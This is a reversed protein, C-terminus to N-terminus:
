TVLIGANRLREERMLAQAYHSHDGSYGGGGGGGLGGAGGGFGGFSTCSSPGTSELLSPGNESSANGDVGQSRYGGGGGGVGLFASGSGGGATLVGWSYAIDSHHAPNSLM